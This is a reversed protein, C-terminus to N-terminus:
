LWGTSERAKRQAVRNLRQESRAADSRRLEDVVVLVKCVVEAVHGLKLLHRTPVTFAALDPIRGFFALGQQVGRLDLGGFTPQAMGMVARAPLSLLAAAVTSGSGFSCEM